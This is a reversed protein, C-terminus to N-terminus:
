RLLGVRRGQAFENLAAPQCMAVVCIDSYVIILDIFVAPSKIFFLWLGVGCWIKGCLTLHINQCLAPHLFLSDSMTSLLYSISLLVLISIVSISEGPYACTCGRRCQHHSLSFWFLYRSPGHQPEELWVVARCQTGGNFFPFACGFSVRQNWRTNEYDQTSDQMNDQITLHQWHTACNCCVEM